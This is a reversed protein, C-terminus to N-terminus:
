AGLWDQWSGEYEQWDWYLSMVLGWWLAYVAVSVAEIM